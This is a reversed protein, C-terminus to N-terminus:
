DPRTAPLSADYMPGPPIISCQVIIGDRGAEYLRGLEVYADRFSVWLQCEKFRVWASEPSLYYRGDADRIAYRQHMPDYHTM